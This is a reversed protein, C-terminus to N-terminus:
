DAADVEFLLVPLDAEFVELLPDASVDLWEAREELVDGEVDVLVAYALAFGVTEDGGGMMRGFNQVDVGSGREGDQVAVDDGDAEVRFGTFAAVQGVTLGLLDLVVEMRRRFRPAAHQHREGASEGSM